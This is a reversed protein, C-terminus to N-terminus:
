GDSLNWVITYVDGSLLDVKGDYKTSSVSVGEKDWELMLPFSGASQENIKLRLMVTTKNKV